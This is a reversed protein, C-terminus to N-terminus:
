PQEAGFPEVGEAEEKAQQQAMFSTVTQYVGVLTDVPIVVKLAGEGDRASVTASVPQLGRKELDEMVVALEPTMFPAMAGGVYRLLDVRVEFLDGEEVDILGALNNEVPKDTKVAELMESLGTVESATLM